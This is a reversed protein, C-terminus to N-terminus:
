AKTRRTKHKLISVHSIKCMIVGGIFLTVTVRILVFIRQPLFFFLGYIIYRM